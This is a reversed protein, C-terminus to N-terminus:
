DWVIVFNVSIGEGGLWFSYRSWRNSPRRIVLGSVCTVEARWDPRLDRVVVLSILWVRYLHIYPVIPMNRRRLLRRSSRWGFAGFPARVFGILIVDPVMQRVYSRYEYIHHLVEYGTDLLNISHLPLVPTTPPADVVVRFPVLERRPIPDPDDRCIRRADASEDSSYSNPSPVM